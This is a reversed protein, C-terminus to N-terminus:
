TAEVADSNSPNSFLMASSSISKIVRVTCSSGSWKQIVFVGQYVLSSSFLQGFPRAVPKVFTVPMVSRTSISHYLAVRVYSARHYPAPPPFECSITLLDTIPLSIVRAKMFCLNVISTARQGITVRAGATQFTIRARQRIM